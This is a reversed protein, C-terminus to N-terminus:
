SKNTWNLTKSGCVTKQISCAKSHLEKQQCKNKTRVDKEQLKYNEQENPTSFCNPKNKVKTVKKNYIFRIFPFPSSLLWNNEKCFSRVLLWFYTASISKAWMSCLSFAMSCSPNSWFQSLYCRLSLINCVSTIM